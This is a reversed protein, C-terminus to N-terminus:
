IISDLQSVQLFSDRNMDYLVCVVNVEEINNEDFLQMFQTRILTIITSLGNRHIIELPLPIIKLLLLFLIQM